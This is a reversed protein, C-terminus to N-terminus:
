IRSKLYDYRTNNERKSQDLEAMLDKILDDLAVDFMGTDASDGTELYRRQASPVTDLVSSRRLRIM